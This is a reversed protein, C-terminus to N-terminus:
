QRVRLVESITTSGNIVKIIGDNFMTIMGEGIAIDQLDKESLGSNVGKMISDSVFLSEFIGIRGLYGTNNCKPCGKPLFYNAEISKVQDSFERGFQTKYFDRPMSELAENIINKDIETLNSKQKCHPCLTRILRQAVILRLTSLLMYKQVGMDLLRTFASVASNTHLTSYVMRGVLSAQVALSATEEDRIEGVMIIDPDQRLFSRLGNAFTLGVEPNVQVQNVGDIRIEVPDELTQINVEPKNVKYLISSLTKTKGSGTPGTVLVIGQTFELVKNILELNYHNVGLEEFDAIKQEKELLRMVIKEGYLGPVVSVRIDVSRNLALVQFRGDQPIRHEDIKLNAMIKIRAVLPGVLSLDDVTLKEMLLGMIRFRVSIKKERPEVHIDSAKHNIAYDLIMNVIKIIPADDTSNSQISDSTKKLQGGVNAASSAKGIASAVNRSIQASYLSQITSRIKDPNSLFVKVSSNLAAEALKIGELDLPDEIALNFIPPDKSEQGFVIMNHQDFINKPLNVYLSQDITIDALDIYNLGKFQAYLKYFMEIDGLLGSERVLDEMKRSQNVSDLKLKSGDSKTIHSNQVLFDIFNKPALLPSSLTNGNAINGSTNVSVVSNTNKGQQDRM